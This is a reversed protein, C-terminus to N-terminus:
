VINFINLYSIKNKNFHLIKDLGWIYFVIFFYITTMQIRLFNKHRKMHFNLLKCIEACQVYKKIM